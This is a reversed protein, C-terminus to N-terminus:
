NSHWEPVFKKLIKFVEKKNKIKIFENLKDMDKLLIQTQEKREKAKYILPHKTKEAEGDILLEEYLKEGPRLGTKIIEIDGHPNDKSKVKFGSLKIMKEALDYIRIPEGMDLLFVEGGKSLSAAQLMLQSAEELTMFYRFVDKHTITVPGGLEIQKQFLPVVSGSSGLVNGFRVMSFSINYGRNESIEAFSQVVLEALRKSAGMVNAPRVAKDTSVLVVKKLKSSKAAKCIIYTSIVNNFIGSLPNKEVIPVHKYAAAHFLIQVNHKSLINKILIEDTASGLYYIINVKDQLSKFENQIKYLNEESIELLILAKPDYQIVQRCLESGISGGAGTICIVSNKIIKNILEVKPNVCDRSLLDEIKLPKYEVINKKSKTIDEFPPVQLIDIGFQSFEDILEVKKKNDLKSVDSIFIKNIKGRFKVINKPSYIKIGGINRGWLSKEDDIFALINYNLDLRLRAAIQAGKSSAGYIVVKTKNRFKETNLKQFIDRLVFSKGGVVVTSVIWLLIWFKLSNNDFGQFSFGFSLICIIFFNRLALYYLDISNSYKTLGKYKGSYIYIYLSFLNLIILITLSENFSNGGQIDDFIILNTVLYSLTILILDITCLILRRVSRKQNVIYIFVKEIFEM